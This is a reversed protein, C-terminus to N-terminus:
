GPKQHAVQVPRVETVPHQPWRCYNTDDLFLCIQKLDLSAFFKVVPMHKIDPDESEESSLIKRTVCIDLLNAM